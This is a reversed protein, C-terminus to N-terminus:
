NGEKLKLFKPMNGDFVVGKAQAIDQLIGKIQKLTVLQQFDLNEAAEGGLMTRASSTQKFTFGPGNTGGPVANGAEDKNDLDPKVMQM